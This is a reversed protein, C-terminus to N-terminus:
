SQPLYKKTKELYLNMGQIKDFTLEFSINEKYYSALDISDNKLSKVIEPILDLGHKLAKNFETIISEPMAKKAIWVAFVFPLGTHEKWYRGLDYAYKFSKGHRFVKDGIMLVGEDDGLDDLQNPLNTLFIPNVKFYEELLVKVLIASTRSDQDLYVFKVQGVPKNAFLGVTLVDGDCGICYDSIIKYDELTSLAGVPVLAIDAENNKFVELCGSPPLLIFESRNWRGSGKLGHLFPLTNYYSVLAINLPILDDMKHEIDNCTYFYRFHLNQM